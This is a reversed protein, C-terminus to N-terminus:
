TKFCYALTFPEQKITALIRLTTHFTNSMENPDRQRMTLPINREFHIGVKDFEQVLINHLFLPLAGGVRTVKYSDSQGNQFSLLFLNLDARASITGNLRKVRHKGTM